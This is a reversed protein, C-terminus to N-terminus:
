RKGSGAFSALSRASTTLHASRPFKPLPIRPYELSDPVRCCRLLVCPLLVLLVCLDVVFGVSQGHLCSGVSEFILAIFSPERAGSSAASPETALNKSAM